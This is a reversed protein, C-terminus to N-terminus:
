KLEECFNVIVEKLIEAIQKVSSIEVYEVSAHAGLGNPGIIITPIGAEALLASDMWYSEGELGRKGTIKHRAEDVLKVITENESIELGPRFFYIDYTAQFKEDNSKIKTLLQTLEKHIDEVNENPLTRREIMVRCHDPYTSPGLGGEITSAHISPSGLIPHVIKQFESTQLKELEVLLKGAKVIADVGELPRSGHAAVGKVDINIWAFGKHAIVINTDTPECIIASDAKYEKLLEETGLSVYEEDAVLALIIDGKLKIDSKIISYVSMLSSVLGGKMDYAGRGYMRGDKIIPEFPKEMGETSVTDTHANLMITKGGGEGKLTAVVNKRHSSIEQFEVELGLNQLFNGLYDAIVSEGQAKDDLSPNVSDIKILDSLLKILVNEDIM